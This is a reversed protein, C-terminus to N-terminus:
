ETVGVLPQVAIFRVQVFCIDLPTLMQVGTVILEDHTVAVEVGLLVHLQHHHVRAPTVDKRQFPHLVSLKDLRVDELTGNGERHLAMGVYARRFFCQGRREVLEARDIEVIHPLYGVARRLLQECGQLSTDIVIREHGTVLDFVTEYGSVHYLLRFAYLSPNTVIGFILTHRFHFLRQFGQFVGFRRADGEFVKIEVEPFSPNRRTDIGGVHATQEVRLHFDGVGCAHVLKRHRAAVLVELYPVLEAHLAIVATIVTHVEQFMGQVVGAGVHHLGDALVLMAVVDLHAVALSYLEGVGLNVLYSVTEGFPEFLLRRLELFPQRRHIVALEVTEYARLIVARVLSEGVEIQFPQCAPADPADIGRLHIADPHELLVAASNAVVLNSGALRQYHTNCRMFHFTQVQRVLRHNDPQFGIDRLNSGGILRCIGIRTNQVSRFLVKRGGVAHTEEVVDLVVVVITDNHRM